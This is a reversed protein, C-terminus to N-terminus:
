LPIPESTSMFGSVLLIKDSLSSSVGADMDKVSLENMEPWVVCQICTQEEKWWDNGEQLQIAVFERRRIRTYFYGFHHGGHPIISYFVRTGFQEEWAEVMEMTVGAPFLKSPDKERYQDYFQMLAPDIRNDVKDVNLFDFRGSGQKPRNLEEPDIGKDRLREEASRTDAVRRKKKRVKKKARPREPPVPSGDSPVEEVKQARELAERQRRPDVGAPKKANALQEPTLTRRKKGGMPNFNPPFGTEPDIGMSQAGDPPSEHFEGEPKISGDPESGPINTM